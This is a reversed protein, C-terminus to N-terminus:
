PAGECTGNICVGCPAHRGNGCPECCDSTQSCGSAFLPICNPAVCVGAVDPLSQQCVLGAACVPPPALINGGCPGGVDSVCGCGAQATPAVGCRAGSPCFGSCTGAADPGCPRVCVSAPGACCTPEGAASLCICAHDCVGSVCHDATCANGDNCDADSACAASPTSTPTPQQVPLCQCAGSPDAQCQGKIVFDPCVTGRGATCPPTIACSGGCPLSSCQPLIPTPTPQQVPVCQCSGSSDTCEGQVAFQPCAAGMPCPPYIVCPGGCATSACQPTPTAPPTRPVPVCDCSGAATVACQGQLVPVNPGNCMAGHPCPFLPSLITCSGGCPVASCQPTPTPPPPQTPGPSSPICQCNGAADPTCEGLKSIVEPCDAGPPCPPSILCRGGCPVSSCQPTPTAPPTPQVPVCDCSGAATVACQGQLVSGEPGNCMAGRPCPFPPSSITCSGGCPVSSCQPAPTAPPTPQVPVCDCSGTATMACQGRLVPVNPGNCMAGLPCPFPPSAIMCPGDCPLNSCQPTPTPTSTPTPQQVPVCQCGGSSDTQCEGRMVLPCVGGNPCPPSITCAGGCPVNSCPSPIPTPTPQQVPLCQCSGSADNHCAGLRCPAEPCVTGPTCPPCITCDGGCPATSCPPPIPNTIPASACPCRHAFRDCVQHPACHPLGRGCVRGTCMKQQVDFCQGVGCLRSSQGTRAHAVRVEAPVIILSLGVIALFSQIVRRTQM